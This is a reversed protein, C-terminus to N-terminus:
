AIFPKDWKVNEEMGEKKKMINRWLTQKKTTTMQNLKLKKISKLDVVEEVFM